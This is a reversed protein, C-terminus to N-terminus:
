PRASPVRDDATRLATAPQTRDANRSMSRTLVSDLQIRRGDRFVVINVRENPQLDALYRTLERQSAVRQDDVTLVRDGPRIGIRYALSGPSAHRITLDNAANFWLGLAPRDGRITTRPPNLDAALRIRRGDREVVIDMNSGRFVDIYDFADRFSDFRQGNIAVIRDGPSLGARSAATDTLVRAVLAASDITSDFTVGFRPNSGRDSSLTTGSQRAANRSGPADRLRSETGPQMSDAQFRDGFRDRMRPDVLRDDARSSDDEFTEDGFRRDGFRDDIRSDSFRADRRPENFRDDARSDTFRSDTRADGFRTDSREDTFREDTRADTFRGNRRDDTFRDDMRSDTFRDDPADSFGEDGVDNRNMATDVNATGLNTAGRNLLDNQSATSPAGRRFTGTGFGPDNVNPSITDAATPVDRARDTAASRDASGMNTAGRNHAGGGAASSPAGRLSPIRSSRTQQSASLGFEGETM